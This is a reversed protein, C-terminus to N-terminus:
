WTCRGRKFINEVGVKVLTNGFYFILFLLPCHVANRPCWNVRFVKRVSFIVFKCSPLATTVLQWNTSRLTRSFLKSPIRRRSRSSTSLDLAVSTERRLSVRTNRDWETYVLSLSSRSDSFLSRGPPGLTRRDRISTVNQSNATILKWPKVKDFISLFSTKCFVYRFFNISHTQGFIDDKWSSSFMKQLTTSIRSVNLVDFDRFLFCGALAHRSGLDRTAVFLVNKMATWRLRGRTAAFSSRSSWKIVRSTATKKQEGLNPFSPM